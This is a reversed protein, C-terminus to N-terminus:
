LGTTRYIAKDYAMKILENTKPLKELSFAEFTDSDRYRRSCMGLWVRYKCDHHIGAYDTDIGDLKSRDEVSRMRIVTIGSVEFEVPFLTYPTYAIGRTFVEASKPIGYEKFAMKKQKNLLGSLHSRAFAMTDKRVDQDLSSPYICDDDIVGFLPFLDEVPDDEM